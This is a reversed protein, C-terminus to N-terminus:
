PRTQGSLICVNFPMRSMSRMNFFNVSIRVAAAANTTLVSFGHLAQAHLHDTSPIEIEFGPALSLNEAFENWWPGIMGRFGGDAKLHHLLTPVAAAGIEKIAADANTRVAENTGEAAAALWYSLPHERAYPERSTLLFALVAGLAVGVSALTLLLRRRRKAPVIVSHDNL